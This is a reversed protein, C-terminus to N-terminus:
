GNLGRLVHDVEVVNFRNVALSDSDAPNDHDLVSVRGGRVAGGTTRPEAFRTM